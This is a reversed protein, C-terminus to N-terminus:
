VSTAPHSNRWTPHRSYAIRGGILTQVVAGSQDLVALDAVAGEAIQGCSDLGLERAATTSCMTSAEVTSCGMLRTLNRFAEDMMFVGGAITGDELRASDVGAVIKAGGLRASAGSPLAAAATGDSIAMVRSASKTRVIMRVMAPHVHVGDCIVETAIADSGLVAGALGPRRQHMPAMRNFLHTAQKAGAAIAALAQEFTANSHGLSVRIGRRTLWGVLDLGGDLEPAITVIAIDAASEEIVALIDNATFPHEGAGPAAPVRARSAVLGSCARLCSLPQAGRYEPNIFNSELHAPLVRAAIAPPSQRCRRVQALMGRLESPSCAVTTPCFATVGFQPLAAAIREIADGDDLTDFGAAGHVHVDVFGPVVTHEPFAYTVAGPPLRANIGVISGNDILVSGSRLVRDHLVLDVGTLAIV